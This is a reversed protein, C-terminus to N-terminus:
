FSSSDNKGGYVNETFVKKLEADSILGKKHIEKMATEVFSAIGDKAATDYAEIMSEQNPYVIPVKSYAQDRTIHILDGPKCYFMKLTHESMWPHKRAVAAMVSQSVREVQVSGEQIKGIRGFYQKLSRQPWNDDDKYFAVYDGVKFESAGKAKKAKVKANKAKKAKANPDKDWLRQLAEEEALLAELEPDAEKVLVKAGGYSKPWHAVKYSSSNIEHGVWAEHEGIHDPPLSCTCSSGKQEVNCIWEDNWKKAPLPYVNKVPKVYPVFGEEWPFTIRAEGYAQAQTILFMEGEYSTFDKGMDAKTKPNLRVCNLMRGSSANFSKSGINVIQGCFKLGYDLDEIGKYAVYDGIEFKVPEEEKKPPTAQIALDKLPTDSYANDLVFDSEGKIKPARILEEDVSDMSEKMSAVCKELKQVYSTIYSGIENEYVDGSKLSDLLWQLNTSTETTVTLLKIVEPPGALKEFANWTDEVYKKAKDTSCGTQAKVYKIFDTKSPVTTSMVVKEKKKSGVYEHTYIGTGVNYGSNMSFSSAGIPKITPKVEYLSKIYENDAWPDYPAVEDFVDDYPDDDSVYLEKLSLKKKGLGGGEDGQLKLKM